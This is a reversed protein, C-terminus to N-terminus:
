VGPTPRISHARWIQSTLLGRLWPRQRLLVFGAAELASHYRPLRRVALGTLVSFAWYLFAILPRAVLRGFWGAPVAFESVVWLADPALSPRLRDALAAIEAATLCDLFFHSVIVDYFQGPAPPSPQWRRIDAVFPRVRAGNPGARRELARLMAPSIDVADVEVAQNERLLRATFRGDGDGLILARRAHALEPLWACRCRWLLPGFTLLEMWLYLGALRDFNPSSQPHSPITRSPATAATPSLPRSM